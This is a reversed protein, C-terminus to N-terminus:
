NKKWLLSGENFETAEQGIHLQMMKPKEGLMIYCGFKVWIDPPLDLTRLYEIFEDTFVPIKTPDDM